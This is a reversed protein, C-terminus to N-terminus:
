PPPSTPATPPAPLPMWHTVNHGDEISMLFRGYETCWEDIAVGDVGHGWGPFTLVPCGNPPVQDAVAVWEMTAMTSAATVAMLRHPIPLLKSPADPIEKERTRAIREQEADWQRYRLWRGFPGQPWKRPKRSSIM